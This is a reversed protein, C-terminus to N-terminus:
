RNSGIEYLAADVERPTLSCRRAVERIRGLYRGYDEPEWQNNDDGWGLADWANPDIAGFRNPDFFALIASAIPIKVYKLQALIRWCPNRPGSSRKRM